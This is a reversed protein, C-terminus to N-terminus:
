IILYIELDIEMMPAKCYKEIWKEIGVANRGLEGGVLYKELSGCRPTQTKRQRWIGSCRRLMCLAAKTEGREPEEHASYAGARPLM